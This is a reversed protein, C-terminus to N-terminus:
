DIAIASAGKTIEMENDLVVARKINKIVVAVITDTLARYRCVVTVDLERYRRKLKRHRSIPVRTRAAGEGGSLDTYM